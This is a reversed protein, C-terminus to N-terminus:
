KAPVGKVTKGEDVDHTVVAGAGIVSRNGIVLGPLITSNAGVYASEGISVRGLSVANPAVTTFDGVINDHMLNCNVNLKCFRGVTTAASVNVGNQIVCGEGIVAYKSIRAYPSIVSIFRYGISEYHLALKKRISPSDPTLVIGCDAYQAFLGNADQDKGLVPIGLYDGDLDNDIIGVVNLGCNECLEIMEHFGGVLIVDNKM